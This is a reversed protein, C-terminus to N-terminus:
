KAVEENAFSDEKFRIYKLYYDEGGNTDKYRKGLGSGFTFFKHFENPQVTMISKGVQIKIPIKKEECHKVVHSGVSANGKFVSKCKVIIM